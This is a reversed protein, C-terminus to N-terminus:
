SDLRVELYVDEAVISGNNCYELKLKREFCPRVNRIDASLSMAPCDITSSISFDQTEVQDFGEFSIDIANTCVEWYDNALTLHLTYMGTDVPLVYEGAENSLTAFVIDNQDTKTATVLWSDAPMDAVDVECNEDVEIALKGSIVNTYVAGQPNAKFVYMQNGGAGSVGQAVGTTGGIIYGSENSAVGSSLIQSGPRYDYIQQFEFNNDFDSAIFLGALNTGTVWFPGVFGLIAIRDGAKRVGRIDVYDEIILTDSAVLNLNADYKLQAIFSTDITTVDNYSLKVVFLVVM